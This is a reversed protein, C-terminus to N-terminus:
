VTVCDSNSSVSMRSLENIKNLIDMKGDDIVSVNENRIERSKNL